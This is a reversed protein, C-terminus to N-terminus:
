KTFIKVAKFIGGVGASNYVKVVVTNTKGSLIMSTVDIDFSSNWGEPGVNHDGAKNGNIWIWGEEDIAGFTLYLKEGKWEKPADFQFRYWATGYYNANLQPEWWEGIEIDMWDKPTYQTYWKEKEGVDQPDLRFRWKKPFDYLEVYGANRYPAFVVGDQCDPRGKASLIYGGRKDEKRELPKFDLAQPNRAEKVAAMYEAPLPVFWPVSYLWVYGDSLLLAYHLAHKFEEPTYSNKTFDTPNVDYEGKDMAHLWLGFGVKILKKYRAPNSSFVAAKNKIIDRAEAFQAYSRYHYSAEYGDFFGAGPDGDMMGDLFDPWLGFSTVSLLPMKEKSYLISNCFFMIVPPHPFSSSLAQMFEKGRKRVQQRYQSFSKEKRHAQATYNFPQSNYQENDLVFGAAKGERAARSAIRVKTLIKAWEDDNYWDATLDASINLRVFNDTLNKFQFSSMLDIDPKLMEYTIENRTNMPLNCFHGGNNSINYMLGNVPLADRKEVGISKLEDPSPTGGTCGKEGLIVIKKGVTVSGAPINGAEGSLRLFALVLLILLGTKFM